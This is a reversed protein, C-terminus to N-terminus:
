LYKSTHGLTASCILFFFRQRLTSLFWKLLHFARETWFHTGSDCKQLEWFIQFHTGFAVKEVFNEVKLAGLFNKESRIGINYTSLLISLLLQVLQFFILIIRCINLFIDLPSAIKPVLFFTGQTSSCSFPPINIFEVSFKRSVKSFFNWCFLHPKALM